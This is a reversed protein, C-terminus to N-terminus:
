FIDLAWVALGADPELSTFIVAFLLIIGTLSGVLIEVGGLIGFVIAFLSTSVEHLNQLYSLQFYKIKHSNVNSPSINTFPVSSAAM